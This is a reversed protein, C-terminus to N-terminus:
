KDRITLRSLFGPHIQVDRRLHLGEAWGTATLPQDESHLPNQKGRLQELLGSSKRNGLFLEAQMIIYTELLSTDLLQMGTWEAGLRTETIFDEQVNKRAASKRFAIDM